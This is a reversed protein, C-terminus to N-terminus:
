SLAGLLPDRDTKFINDLDQDFSSPLNSESLSQTIPDDAFFQVCGDIDMTSETLHPPSASQAPFGNLSPSGLGIEDALGLGFDGLPSGGGFVALPSDGSSESSLLSDPNFSMEALLDSYEGRLAGLSTPKSPAFSLEHPSECCGVSPIQVMPHHMLPKTSSLSSAMVDPEQGKKLKNLIFNRFAVLNGPNMSKPWQSKKRQGAKM